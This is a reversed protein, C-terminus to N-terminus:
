LSVRANANYLADEQMKCTNKKKELLLRCVLHLRSQLESTHEESRHGLRGRGGVVPAFDPDSHGQGRQVQAGYGRALWGKDHRQGAVRGARRGSRDPTMVVGFLRRRQVVRDFLSVAQRRPLTDPDLQSQGTGPRPPDDGVGRHDIVRLPLGPDVDVWLGQHEHSVGDTDVVDVPVPDNQRVTRRRARHHHRNAPRLQETGFVSSFSPGSLNVAIIRQITPDLRLNRKRTIAMAAPIIYKPMSRRREIGTSTKGSNAGGMTSIWVSPMPMVALSTSSSIVRGISSCSLPVGSSSMRRELDTVPRDAIRRMKLSPVSM